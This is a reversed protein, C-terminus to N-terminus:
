LFFDTVGLPWQTVGLPCKTVGYSCETVGEPCKTVGLSCCKSVQQPKLSKQIKKNLSEQTKKSKETKKFIKNVSQFLIECFTNKLSEELQYNHLGFLLGADKQM